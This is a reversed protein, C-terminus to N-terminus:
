TKLIETLEDRLKIAPGGQRRLRGVLQSVAVPTGMHLQECLWRNSAQTKLKLAAAIAIKWDASKRGAKIDAPKKGARRLCRELAARWHEPPGLSTLSQSKPSM